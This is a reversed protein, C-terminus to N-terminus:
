AEKQSLKNMLAELRRNIGEMERICERVERAEAELSLHELSHALNELEEGHHANHHLTYELFKAAEGASKLLLDHSHGHDHDHGHEHSHDHDHHM